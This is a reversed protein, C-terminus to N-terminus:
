AESVAHPIGQFLKNNKASRRFYPQLLKIQQKPAHTCPPEHLSGTSKRIDDTSKEKCRAKDSFPLMEGLFTM